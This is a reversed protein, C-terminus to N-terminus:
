GAPHARAWEPWPTPPEGAVQAEFQGFFWRRYARVEPSPALTLMGGQACFEDVEDLMANSARGVAGARSPVRYEVDVVAAGATVAAELAERPGRAYPEFGDRIRRGLELMRTPVDGPEIAIYVFERQLEDLHELAEQHLAVPLELMRVVHLDAARGTGTAAGREGM